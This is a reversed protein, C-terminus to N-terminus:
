KRGKNQTANQQRSTFIVANNSGYEGRVDLDASHRRHSTKMGCLKKYYNRTGQEL